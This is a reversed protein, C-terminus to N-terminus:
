GRILHGFLFSGIVESWGRFQHVSFFFEFHFINQPMSIKTPFTIQLVEDFPLPVGCSVIHPLWHLLHKSGGLDLGIM